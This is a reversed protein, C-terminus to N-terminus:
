RHTTHLIFYVIHTNPDETM